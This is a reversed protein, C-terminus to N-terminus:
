LIIFFLSLPHVSFTLITLKSPCMLAVYGWPHGSIAVSFLGGLTVLRSRSSGSYGSSSNDVFNECQCREIYGGRLNRPAAFHICPSQWSMQSHFGRCLEKQLCNKIQVFINNRINGEWRPRKGCHADFLGSTASQSLGSAIHFNTLPRCLHSSTPRRATRLFRSAFAHATTFFGSKHKISSWRCNLRCDLLAYACKTTSISWCCCAPPNRLVPAQFPFWWKDGPFFPIVDRFRFEKGEIGPAWGLALLLKTQYLSIWGWVGSLSDVQAYIIVGNHLGCFAKIVKKLIWM